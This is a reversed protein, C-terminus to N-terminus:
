RARVDFSDKLTFHPSPASAEDLRFMQGHLAGDAITMKIYHYNPFESTQYLDPETRDVEYPVAGGGGTVIYTVDDELFREYNHIHGALVVFRAQSTRAVDRLYDGLAIENPRPNHDVRMRTQIDAVPPHHLVIFVFQVTPPLMGLEHEIWVRQESGPVLPSMTDLILVRISPGIDAGYWRKGRLEPFAAWWHEVCDADACQSFEHNGLAPLVRLGLSRWRETEARFVKYDNVVGGHYPLDGSILIADPKEEAMKAVLAHRALPSTATTNSPDTFRTDGYALVTVPAEASVLRARVGPAAALAAAAAFVLVSLWRQFHRM